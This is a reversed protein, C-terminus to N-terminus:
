TVRIEQYTKEAAKPVNTFTLRLIGDKYEAKIKEHGIGEGLRFRREFSDRFFEELIYKKDILGNKKVKEARVTLIDDEVIIELEKKNFGPVALEIEFIDGSKLVNAPPLNWKKSGIASRGLFHEKDILPAFGEGM